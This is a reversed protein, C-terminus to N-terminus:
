GSRESIQNAVYVALQTRNRAGSKALIVSVGNRITKEALHLEEAIERNTCGKAVLKLIRLEHPTLEDLTGSFAQAPQERRRLRDVMKPDILSEGAAARRVASRVEPGDAFKSLYGVAGALVSKLFADEDAFATFIVCRVAPVVNRVHRAVEIGSGDPLRVDILAVDPVLRLIEETATRADGADGVVEIEPDVSLVQRVGECIMKHDDVLFVRITGVLSGKLRVEGGCAL